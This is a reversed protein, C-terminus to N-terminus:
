VQPHHPNDKSFFSRATVFGFQDSQKGLSSQSQVTNNMSHSVNNFQMLSQGMKKIMVRLTEKDLLHPESTELPVLPM